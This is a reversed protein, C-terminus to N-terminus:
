YSLRVCLRTSSVTAGNLDSGRIDQLELVLGRQKCLQQFTPEEGRVPVAMAMRLQEDLSIWFVAPAPSLTIKKLNSSQDQLLNFLAESSPNNTWFHRFPHNTPFAPPLTLSPQCSNSTFVALEELHPYFEWPPLALKFQSRAVNEVVLAKLTQRYPGLAHELEEDHIVISLNILSPLALFDRPQHSPRRTAWQLTRLRPLEIEEPSSVHFSDVEVLLSTLNTFVPLRYLFEDTGTSDSVLRIEVRQVNPHRDAYDVLDFFPSILPKIFGYLRIIKWSSPFPIVPLDNEDLAVRLATSSSSKVPFQKEARRDERSDAFDRWARCVLSISRRQRESENYTSRGTTGYVHGKVERANELTWTCFSEITCDIDFLFPVHIVEDLIDEWIEYPIRNVALGSMNQTASAVLLSLRTPTLAEGLDQGRIKLRNEDTLSRAHWHDLSKLDSFLTEFSDPPTLGEAGLRQICIGTYLAEM